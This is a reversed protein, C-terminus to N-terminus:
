GKRGSARGRSENLGRGEARDRREDESNSCLKLKEQDGQEAYFIEWWKENESNEKEFGAELGGSVRKDMRETSGSGKRDANAKERDLMGPTIESLCEMSTKKM